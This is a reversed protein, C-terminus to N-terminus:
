TPCSAPDNCEAIPRWQDFVGCDDCKFEYLPM